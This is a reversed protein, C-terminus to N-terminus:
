RSVIKNFQLKQNEFFTFVRFGQHLVSCRFDIEDSFTRMKVLLSNKVGPLATSYPYSYLNRVDVFGNGNMWNSAIKNVNQFESYM